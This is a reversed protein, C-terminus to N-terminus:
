WPLQWPTLDHPASENRHTHAHAQQSRARRRLRRRGTRRNGQIGQLDRVQRDRFRLRHRGRRLRRGVAGHEARHHRATVPRRLAERAERQLQGILPMLAEQEHPDATVGARELRRGIAHIARLRQLLAIGDRDRVGTMDAVARRRVPHAIRVAADILGLHRVEQEARRV